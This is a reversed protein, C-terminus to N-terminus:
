QRGGGARQRDDGNEHSPEIAGEEAGAEGRTVEGRVDHPRRDLLPEERTGQAEGGPVRVLHAATRRDAEHAGPPHEHQGEGAEVGDQPQFCADNEVGNEGAEGHERQHALDARSALRREEGSEDVRDHGVGDIVGGDGPVHM